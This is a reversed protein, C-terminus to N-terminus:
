TVTHAEDDVAFTPKGVLLELALIGAAWVDIQVM